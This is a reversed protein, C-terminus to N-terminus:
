RGLRKTKNKLSSNEAKVTEAYTKLESYKSKAIENLNRLENIKEIQKKEADEYQKKQLKYRVVAKRTNEVLEKNRKECDKLTSFLWKILGLLATGLVVGALRLLIETNSM